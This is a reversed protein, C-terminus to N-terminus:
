LNIIRWKISQNISTLTAHGNDTIQLEILALILGAFCLYRFKWKKTTMKIFRRQKTTSTWEDDLSQTGDRLVVQLLNVIDMQFNCKELNLFEILSHVKFYFLTEIGNKVSWVEFNLSQNMSRISIGLHTNRNLLSPASVRLDFM